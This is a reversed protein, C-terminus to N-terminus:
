PFVNAYMNVFNSDGCGADTDYPENPQIPLLFHFAFVAGLFACSTEVFNEPYVKLTPCSLRIQFCTIIKIQIKVNYKIFKKYKLSICLIKKFCNKM